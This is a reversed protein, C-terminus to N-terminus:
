KGGDTILRGTDWNRCVRRGGVPWNCVTRSRQKSADQVDTEVIVLPKRPEQVGGLGVLQADLVMMCSDQGPLCRRALKVGITDIGQQHSAADFMLSFFYKWAKARDEDSMGTGYIIPGDQFVTDQQTADLTFMGLGNSGGGGEVILGVNEGINYKVTWDQIFALNIFATAGPMKWLTDKDFLLYNKNAVPTICGSAKVSCSLFYHKNPNGVTILKVDGDVHRSEFQVIVPPILEQASVSNLQLLV